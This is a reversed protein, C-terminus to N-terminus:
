LRPPNSNLELRERNLREAHKLTKAMDCLGLLALCDDCRFPHKIEDSPLPVNQVRYQWLIELPIHDYKYPAGGIMKQAEM